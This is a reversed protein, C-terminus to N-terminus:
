SNIIKELTKKLKDPSNIKQFLLKIRKTFLHKNKTPKDFFEGGKMPYIEKIKSPPIHKGTYLSLQAQAMRSALGLLGYKRLRRLSFSYTPDKYLDFKKGSLILKKILSQGEAYHINEEWGGLQLFVAKKIITMGEPYLARLSGKSLEMAQNMVVVITQELNNKKEAHVWTTAMDTPSSELRYKIGQLYYAPLRDDADMFLLWDSIAKKAGINRQTCVHRRLSTLTTLDLTSTFSGALELTKDKSNGDVIIVEFDKFTQAVLDELLHPLYKAENLTPIIISFFNKKM